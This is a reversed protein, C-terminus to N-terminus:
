IMLISESYRELYKHIKRKRRKRNVRVLEELDSL